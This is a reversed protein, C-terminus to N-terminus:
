WLGLFNASLYEGYHELFYLLFSTSVHALDNEKSIINLMIKKFQTIGAMEHFEFFPAGFIVGAINKVEQNNKNKILFTQM